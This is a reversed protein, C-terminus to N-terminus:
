PRYDPGPLDGNPGWGSYHDRAAGTKNIKMLEDNKEKSKRTKKLETKLSKIRQDYEDKTIGYGTNQCRNYLENYNRILKNYMYFLDTYACSDCEIDGYKDYYEAQYKNYQNIEKCINEISSPKLYKGSIWGQDTRGWKGIFEYICVSDRINVRDVIKSPKGPKDRINLQKVKIVTFYTCQPVASSLSKSKNTQSPYQKISKIDILLDRVHYGTHGSFFEGKIIVKQHDKRAKNFISFDHVVLQVESTTTTFNLEDPEKEIVKIPNDLKLIYATLKKDHKPDEGYGPPGYYPVEEIYGTISHVGSFTYTPTKHNRDINTDTIKDGEEVITPFSSSTDILLYSPYMKTKGNSNLQVHKEFSVKHLRPTLVAYNPNKIKQSFSPYKKFFRKKDKICKDQSLKSGYYTVETAYLRSLTHADKANNAENWSQLIMMSKSEAEEGYASSFVALMLCISIFLKM